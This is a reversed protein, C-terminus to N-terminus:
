SLSLKEQISKFNKEDMRKFGSVQRLADLTTFPGHKKRWAIIARAKSPNLGIISMLEKKTATNLNLLAAHAESRNVVSHASVPSTEKESNAFAATYIMLLCMSLIVQFFKM